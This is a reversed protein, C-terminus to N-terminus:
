ITTWEPLPRYARIPNSATGQIIETLIPQNTQRRVEDTSIFHNGSSASFCVSVGNVSPMSGAHMKTPLQRDTHGKWSFQCYVPTTSSWSLQCRSERGGSSSTLARCQQVHSHVGDWSTQFATLQRTSSLVWTSLNRRQALRKSWCQSPLPVDQINGLAQM